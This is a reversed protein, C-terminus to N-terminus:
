HKNAARARKKKIPPKANEKDASTTTPRKQTDAMTAKELAKAAKREIDKEKRWNINACAIEDERALVRNPNELEHLPLVEDVNSTRIANRDQRSVVPVRSFSSRCRARCLDVDTTSAQSTIFVIYILINLQM